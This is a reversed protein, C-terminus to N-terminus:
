GWRSVEDADDPYHIGLADILAGEPETDRAGLDTYKDMVKYMADRANRWKLYHHVYFHLEENLDKIAADLEEQPKSHYLEWDDLNMECNRARNPFEPDISWPRGM